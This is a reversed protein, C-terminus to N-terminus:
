LTAISKIFDPQDKRLLDGITTCALISQWQKRVSEIQFHMPCPNLPNCEQFRLVCSSFEESEGTVEILRLLTIGTTQENIFFGGSPGKMSSLVGERVLKKMVKGLFHRPVALEKAIEELQVRPKDENTHAVYMVGRLAYGFTKSFIM